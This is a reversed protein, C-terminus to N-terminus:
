DSSTEATAALFTQERLFMLRPLRLRHLRIQNKLKAFLAEGVKKKQPQANSFELTNVLERACAAACSYAILELGIRGAKTFFFHCSTETSV